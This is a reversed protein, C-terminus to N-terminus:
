DDVLEDVVEVGRRAAINDDEAIRAVKGDEINLADDPQGAFSALGNLLGDIEGLFEIGFGNLNGDSVGHGARFQVIGHGLFAEQLDFCKRVHTSVLQGMKFIRM